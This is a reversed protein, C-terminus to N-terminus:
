PVLLGGARDYILKASILLLLIYLVNALREASFGTEGGTTAGGALAPRCRRSAVRAAGTRAAAAADDEDERSAGGHAKEM